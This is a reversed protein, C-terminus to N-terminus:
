KESSVPVVNLKRSCVVSGNDIYFIASEGLKSGNLMDIYQYLMNNDIDGKEIATNLSKCAYNCQSRKYNNSTRDYNEHQSARIICEVEENTKNRTGNDSRHIYEHYTANEMDFMNDFCYNIVGMFVCVNYSDLGPMYCLAAGSFSNDEQDIIGIRIMNNDHMQVYHAMVKKLMNRNLVEEKMFSFSRISRLSGDECRILINTGESTREIFNGNRDFIDDLGNGDIHKLPNWHCYHYPSINPYKDALPDISLWATTLTHDLYRAGFYSYGTEADLEKGTSNPTIKRSYRYQNDTSQFRLLRGNEADGFANNQRDSINDLLQM